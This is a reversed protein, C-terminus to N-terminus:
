ILISRVDSTTLTVGQEAAANIAATRARALFNARTTDTVDYPVALDVQKIPKGDDKCIQVLLNFALESDGGMSTIPGLYAKM